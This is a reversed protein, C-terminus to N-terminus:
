VSAEVSGLLRSSDKGMFAWAWGQRAGCAPCLWGESTALLNTPEHTEGCTFPHCEGADQHRNLNRVQKTNWPPYIKETTLREVRVRGAETLRYRNPGVREVLGRGHFSRPRSKVLEISVVKVDPHQDKFGVLGFRQPNRRWVAVALEATSFTQGLSVAALLLHDVATM